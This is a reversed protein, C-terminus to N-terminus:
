GGRGRPREEILRIRRGNIETGDLKELANRMDSSTSFEVVRSIFGIIFHRLSQRRM